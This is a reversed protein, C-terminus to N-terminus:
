VSELLKLRNSLCDRESSNTSLRLATQYADIAAEVLGSQRLLEARAAHYPQYDQLTPDSALPPLVRLGLEAGHAYAIAVANNIRVVPSPNLCYLQDYLRAISLWDTDAFNIAEAHVASIRAQLQYSGMASSRMKKASDDLLQPMSLGENIKTLDWRARDQHELTLMEGAPSLRSVRRSDHLLMLALLGSTEAEQPTLERLMRGLRIAEDSLEYRISVSASSASYGPNFILYIVALVSSLRQPWAHPDPIRYAIGADKIKRKARVLTQAM